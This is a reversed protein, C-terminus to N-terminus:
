GAPQLDTAELEEVVRSLFEREKQSPRFAQASVFIRGDGLCSSGYDGQLHIGKGGMCETPALQILVGPYGTGVFDPRPDADGLAVQPGGAEGFGEPLEAPPHVKLVVFGEPTQAPSVAAVVESSSARDDLPVHVTWGSLRHVLWRTTNKLRGDAPRAAWEEVEADEPSTHVELPARGALIRPEPGGHAFVIAGIWRGEWALDVDPQLGMNALELDEPYVLTVRTGDPFFVPAAVLDGRDDTPPIFSSSSPQSPGGGTPSPSATPGARPGGESPQGCASSLLWLVAVLVRIAIRDM